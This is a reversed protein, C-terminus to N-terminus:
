KQETGREGGEWKMEGHTGRGEQWRKGVKIMVVLTRREMGGEEKGKM